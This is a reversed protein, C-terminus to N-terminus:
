VLKKAQFFGKLHKMQWAGMLVLTATQGLAWWLVREMTAESVGRFKEERFRQYNQEKSIREVQDLIQRVRLQLESLKEKKAVQSYDEGEEAIKIDM